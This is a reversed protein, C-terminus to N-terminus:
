VSFLRFIASRQKILHAKCSAAICQTLDPDGREMCVLIRKSSGWKKRLDRFIAKDLNEANRPTIRVNNSDLQAWTEIVLGQVTSELDTFFARDGKVAKWVRKILTTIVLRLCTKSVERSATEDPEIKTTLVTLEEQQPEIDEMLPIQGSPLTENEMLARLVKDSYRTVQNELWWNMVSLFCVVRQRIDAYMSAYPQPQSELDGEKFAQPVIQGTVHKYILDSLQETLEVVDDRSVNELKYPMGPEEVSIQPKAIAQLLPMAEALLARIADSDKLNAENQFKAKVQSFIRCISAKAFMTAFFNGIKTRMGKLSEQQQTIPTPYVSEIEKSSIYENVSQAIEEAATQTEQSFQKQLQNYEPDGVDEVIPEIILNVKVSLIDQVSQAISSENESDRNTPDSLQVSTQRPPKKTCCMKGAFKKLMKCVSRIMSNTPKPQVPRESSALAIVETVILDTLADTSPGQVSQVGLVEAFSQSISGDVIDRLNNVSSDQKLYMSLADMISYLIKVLMDALRLRTANDPKGAALLSWQEATLGKTFSEIHPRITDVRMNAVETSDM